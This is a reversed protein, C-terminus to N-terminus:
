RSMVNRAVRRLIKRFGSIPREFSYSSARYDDDKYGLAWALDGCITSISQIELATLHSKRSKASFVYDKPQKKVDQPFSTDAKHWPYDVRNLMREEEFDVGLFKCLAKGTAQPDNTLDEYKLLYYNEPNTHARALGISVSRYWREGQSHVYFPRKEGRHLERNHGFKFSAMMDFPNRVVHIFKFEFDKLWEQVIDYYFENRPTKEGAITKGVSEAYRVLMDVFVDRHERDYLDSFDMQWRKPWDHEKLINVVSKGAVYQRLFHSEGPPIAIKSNSGIISQVLTTGSRPVGGILVFKKIM